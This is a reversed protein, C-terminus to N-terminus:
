KEAGNALAREDGMGKAVVGRKDTRNRGSGGKEQVGEAALKRQRKVKARPKWNM